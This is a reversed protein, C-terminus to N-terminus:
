RPSEAEPHLVGATQTGQATIPQAIGTEKPAASRLVRVMAVIVTLVSLAGLLAPVGATGIVGLSVPGAFAGFLIGLNLSLVLSGSAPVVQAPTLHDNAYAVCLSYIPLVSAGLIAAAILVADGFAGSALAIATLTSVVSLGVVVFRRDTRDSILGVPFQALAGAITATVVLLTADGAGMGRAIGYLPLGVYVTAQAAGNLAGGFVAMPTIIALKRLSMRMPVVYDPAPNKSMLVPLFSLSILISAVGFLLVGSADDAGALAQGASAGAMQIVFYISLVMARSRNPTQANLWSECIVYLGPFCFGSLMRMLGWTWVDVSMLHVIATISCLSGLAAFARVHGVSAILRPAYLCGALAGLPYGAQMLGISSSSMGIAAGRVSLLTVLLGNAAMLLLMATFLAWNEKISNIM